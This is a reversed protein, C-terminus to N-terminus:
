VQRILLDLDAELDTTVLVLKEGTNRGVLAGIRQSWSSPVVHAEINMRSSKKVATRIPEFKMLKSLVAQDFCILNEIAVNIMTKSEIFLSMLLSYQLILHSTALVPYATRFDFERLLKWHRLLLILRSMISSAPTQKENYKLDCLNALEPVDARYRHIVKLAEEYMQLAYVLVFGRIMNEHSFMEFVSDHVLRSADDFSKDKVVDEMDMSDFGNFLHGFEAPFSYKLGNCDRKYGYDIVLENSAQFVLETFNSLKFYDIRDCLKSSFRESLLRFLHYEWKTTVQGFTKQIHRLEVYRMAFNADNSIGIRLHQVSHLYPWFQSHCICVAAFALAIYLFLSFPCMPRPHNLQVIYMASMRCPRRM